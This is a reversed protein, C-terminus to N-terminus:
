GAGAAPAAERAFTMYSMTNFARVLRTGPRLSSDPRIIISGEVELEKTLAALADPGKLAFKAFSTQDILM